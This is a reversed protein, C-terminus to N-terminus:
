DVVPRWDTSDKNEKGLNCDECLLQLNEFVLELDPRKSRPKIHDVHIVIGHEKPSRGCGMCAAKYKRIVRYRLGRWAHSMYFGDGSRTHKKKKKAKKKTPAKKKAPHIPVGIEGMRCFRTWWEEEVFVGALKSYWRNGLLRIAMGAQQKTFGQEGKSERRLEKTIEIM